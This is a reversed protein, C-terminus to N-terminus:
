VAQEEDVGDTQVETVPLLAGETLLWVAFSTTRRDGGRPAACTPKDAPGNRNGDGM